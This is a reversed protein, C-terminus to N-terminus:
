MLVNEPEPVRFYNCNSQPCELFHEKGSPKEEMIPFGCQPCAEDVPKNWIAYKCKPYKSCGYFTKGKRSKRELLTGKKCEPCSVGTDAQIKKQIYNCRPYDVCSIFPSYRGKRQVLKSGCLVCKGEVPIPSDEEFPRTNRCEPYNTCAYFKGFRGTKVKFLNGCQDCKFDSLEQKAIQPNGDVDRTLEATFKCDPFNSCSLFEGNKGWKIVLLNQCNECALTTPIEQKKVDRMKVQAEQLDSKFKKYFVRIAETWNEDGTEVADLIDELHATFHVDLIEPFNEVLLEDVLMGTATPHFRNQIREVYERKTITEMISAFTSPRGIGKEELERVLSAQSYRPPPETFHQSPTIDGVQLVEGEKLPPLAQDPEEKQVDDKGEEYLKLFGSFLLVSGTVKWLFKGATIEVQTQDYVASSMQSSVFRNWILEYLRQQDKDLFSRTQEPSYRMSTPRIAEHADQVKKSQKTKYIRAKQPCYDKGYTKIIMKRVDRLISESIRLSDTRMYTILGGIEDNVGEYLQQAIRMTRTSSFGLKRAAEQQLTSTIFPGAPHRLRQKKTVKDIVFTEKECQKKIDTATKEDGIVIDTATKENGFVVNKGDLKALKIQFSQNKQNKAVANIKWYERSKFKRIEAERQCILRVAVSQVRGASLGFRVKEWLLPSIQYGVLRDLVRRAKQANYKSFNLSDAQKIKELVSSKTIEYLLLRFIDGKFYPKLEEALHVAIAEGERDPDPALYINEASKAAKLITGLITRKKSIVDYEPEFDKEINVGLRDKPLDKVHGVSALVKFDKGLYKNITKAKAPSEVIVLSNTM